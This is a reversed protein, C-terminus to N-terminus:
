DAQNANPVVRMASRAQKLFTDATGRALLSCSLLEQLALDASPGAMGESCPEPDPLCASPRLFSCAPQVAVSAAEISSIVAASVEHVETRRCATLILAAAGANVPISTRATLARPACSTGIALGAFFVTFALQIAVVQGIFSYKYKFSDELYQKITPTDAQGVVTIQASLAPEM